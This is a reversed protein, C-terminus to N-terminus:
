LQQPPRTPANKDTPEKAVSHTPTPTPLTSGPKVRGGSQICAEISDFEAYVKIEGYDETGQEYCVRANSKKVKPGKSEEATAALSACLLSCVCWYIIRKM